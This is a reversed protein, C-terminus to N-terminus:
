CKLSWPPNRPVWCKYKACKVVKAQAKKVTVKELQREKPYAEKLYLHNKLNQGFSFHRSIFIPYKAAMKFRYLM